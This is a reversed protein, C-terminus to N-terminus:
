FVGRAQKSKKAALLFRPEPEIRGELLDAVYRGVAPGHKFGHGSGGGAVWVDDGLRDILFDGNSTNEYVCVRTEVIPALRLDPFFQIAKARIKTAAATTMVREDQEPDIKPGHSDIAFKLGRREVDPLAYVGDAFDVWAPMQPARFRAEGPSTGFFAVEQRTPFIRKGLQNPFLAPLWPGCAFIYRKAPILQRVNRATVALDFRTVGIRAAASAVCEVARRALLVGADPEFLGTTRSAFRFQPFRRKLEPASLLEHEIHLQKLTAATANVFPTGVPATFLAGSEIFLNDCDNEAFLRRWRTLSERAMRSYIASDGYSSRIIRTEGGSSSRANGAGHADTLAVRLGREALTHAIWSGFSGSGIVAVDFYRHPLAIM